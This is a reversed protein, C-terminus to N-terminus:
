CSPKPRPRKKRYRLSGGHRAFLYRSGFARLRIWSATSAGVSRLDTEIGRRYFWIEFRDNADTLFIKSLLLQPCVESSVSVGYRYERAGMGTKKKQYVRHARRTHSGFTQSGHRKTTSISFFERARFRM